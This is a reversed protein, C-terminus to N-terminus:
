SANALSRELVGINVGHQEHLRTALSHPIFGRDKYERIAWALLETLNTM